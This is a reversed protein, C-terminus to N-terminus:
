GAGRYSVLSDLSFWEQVLRMDREKRRIAGEKLQKRLQARGTARMYYTVADAIFSSREGKEAVRDILQITKEPLTINVRRHM